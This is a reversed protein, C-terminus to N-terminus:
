RLRRGIEGFDSGESTEVRGAWAEATPPADPRWLSVEVADTITCFAGLWIRQHVTTTKKRTKCEAVIMRIGRFLILDPFGEHSRRSDHTHYTTWGCLVALKIIQAQFDEELINVYVRAAQRPSM